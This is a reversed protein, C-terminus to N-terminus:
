YFVVKSVAQQTEDAIQVVYVGSPLGNREIEFLPQGSTPFSRVVQGNANTITLQAWRSFVEPVLVTLSESAPNPYTVIELADTNLNFIGSVVNIKCAPSSVTGNSREYFDNVVETVKLCITDKTLASYYVRMLNQYSSSKPLWGENMALAIIRNKAANLRYTPKFSANLTVVSDIVVGDLSLDMGVQKRNPNVSQIDIYKSATNLTQFRFVPRDLQNYTNIPFPCHDRSGWYLSDGGHLSCQQLLAADHLSFKTDGNLDNCQTNPVTTALAQDLYLNLDTINRSQDRNFDGILLGTNCNGECDAVYPGFPIQNCDYVVNSCDPLVAMNATGNASYTLNFCATGYNNTYTKEPKNNTDNEEYSNVKIVLQYQGAPLNTVDVWQCPLTYDYEDSCDKSIGMTECTYKAEGGAPCFLDLVCFGTKSGIPIRKGSADYLLYEAYGRYHWHGHCADYVFQANAQSPNVPPPGIYYDIEGINDIRTSFKILNRTGYGRICGENVLCADSNNETDLRLTSSITQQHVLLDPLNNCDPDGPYVCAATDSVTALPEYNCANPDTCGVVPGNYNLSFVLSDSSCAARAYGVRIFYARGGGMHLSLKAGPGAACGTNSYAITGLNTSDVVTSPTCNDYVWIKTACNTNCADITYTGNEAPTFSYWSQLLRSTNNGLEIPLPAGCYQGTTCNFNTTERSTFNGNPNNKLITAGIRISYSGGPFMGDDASDNITFVYCGSKPLCYKFVQASSSNPSGSYFVTKGFIDTIKWSVEDYFQDPNINLQLEFNLTTDCQAIAKTAQALLLLLVIVSLKLQNIMTQPNQRFICLCRM